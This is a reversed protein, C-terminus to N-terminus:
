KMLPLFKLCKFDFTAHSVDLARPDRCSQAGIRPRVAVLPLIRFISSLSKRSWTFRPASISAPESCCLNM